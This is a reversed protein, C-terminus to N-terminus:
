TAGNAISVFAGRTNDNFFKGVYGGSFRVVVGPETGTSTRRRALSTFAVDGRDNPGLKMGFSEPLTGDAGRLDAIGPRTADIQTGGDRALWLEVVWGYADFSGLDNSGQMIRKRGAECAAALGGAPPAGAATDSASASSRNLLEYGGIGIAGVALIGVAVAIPLALSPQRPAEPVYVGPRAGPGLGRLAAVAASPPHTGGFGGSRPAAAGEHAPSRIPLPSAGMPPKAGAFPPAGGRAFSSTDLELPLPREDTDGMTKARPAADVVAVAAVPPPGDTPAPLTDDDERRRRKPAAQPSPESAPQVPARAPAGAPVLPADLDPLLPLTKAETFGAPHAHRVSPVASSPGVVEIDGSALEIEQVKSAILMLTEKGSRSVYDGLGMPSEVGLVRTVEIAMERATAYRKSRDKELARMVLADVEANLTPVITSPKEPVEQVAKFITVADDEEDYLRRMTLLEWLVVAAAYVDVRRDLHEARIQEPAM